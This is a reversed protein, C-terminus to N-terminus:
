IGDEDIIEETSNDDDQGFYGIFNKAESIINELAEDMNGQATAASYLMAFNVGGLVKVNKMEQSILVAQNFPTGGMIDTLVFIGEYSSLKLLAQKIKNAIDESSEGELFDCCLVNEMPGGVLKLASYLGTPYNAHAAIIVGFM